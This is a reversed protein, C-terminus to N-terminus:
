AETVRVVRGPRALVELFRGLADADKSAYVAVHGSAFTVVVKRAWRTRGKGSRIVFVDPHGFLPTTGAPANM